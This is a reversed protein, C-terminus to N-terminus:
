EKNVVGYWALEIHLSLLAPTSPNTPPHPMGLWFLSWNSANKVRSKRPTILSPCLSAIGKRMAKATVQRDGSSSVSTFKARKSRSLLGVAVFGLFVIRSSVIACSKGVLELSLAPFVVEDVAILRSHVSPFGGRCSCEIWKSACTKLNTTPADKCVCLPLELLREAM